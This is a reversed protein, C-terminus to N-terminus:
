HSRGFEGGGASGAVQEGEVFMKILAHGVVLRFDDVGEEHFRERLIDGRM